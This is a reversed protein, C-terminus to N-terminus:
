DPVLRQFVQFPMRDLVFLDSIHVDGVGHDRKLASVAELQLRNLKEVDHQWLPHGLLVAKPNAGDTLLAPLGCSDDYHLPGFPLFARVFADGLLAARDMWRNLRLGEGSILDIMDLALRWDLAWHLQRNDYSRLCRPCSTSCVGAHEPGEYTKTLQSRVQGLLEEFRDQRGLEVAYGAGNDLADAVFVQHTLVGDRFVPQLGVELEAEDIDLSAKCARRLVHALSWLAPLGAPLVEKTTPVAGDVLNLREASVILVDTRRIEGIAADPLPTGSTLWNPLTRQYLSTDTVVVSQDPLRVMPYLMGLNDNVQVVVAQELVTLSCGPLMVAPGASDGHAALQPAGSYFPQEGADDYDEPKYDTRFGEPQVFPIADAVHGCLGCLRAESPDDVVEISQCAPCRSINIVEGLPDIPRLDRGRMEYAAFGVATHQQGDKVVVAGPAYAGVAQDLERDSVTVADLRAITRAPGGYLSRVRTPFGFMPLLGANALLESLEAHRFYPNAVADTIEGALDRRVWAEVAAPDVATFSCFHECITGVAPDTRLWGAVQQTRGSWEETRGFTGHISDPNRAPPEPLALFALRLAEAAAVRRVIRDRGLDIFPAPPEDGTMSEVNEFYYDDHSRDKCLTIAFSFPQGSRGARGVRQQYNFRQPPVNAMAVSRLAGIDVGVEMTTTVSLVDLPDTVSNEEPAPLLAHRFRRQRDRQEALSTQGTLEAVSMRRVPQRALWGYYDGGGSAAAPQHELVPQNCGRATCVGGAPHLHVAACNACVWCGATGPVIVLAVDAKHMNLLWTDSMVGATTLESEVVGALERGDVGFRRGVAALYATVAGPVSGSSEYGGPFRKSIGLIRLVSRRVELAPETPITWKRRLGGRVDVYGIGTSEVDRGARDFVATSANTVLQRRLEDRGSGAVASDLPEWLGPAPPEFGLYWPSESSIYAASPGPGAPNIGHRLCESELHALLAPWGTAGADRSAAEIASKDEDEALGARELRLASYLRPQHEKVRNALTREAPELAEQGLLRRLLTVPDHTQGLGQRVLQRIQDRYNNLAVGASTRAADDRSDTFVITRSSEADPGSSRFLQSIALQAMQSQGATHARIPSRVVGHFFTERERNLGGRMQCRPCYEPLAPVRRSSDHPLNHSLVLGTGLGTTHELSGIYPNLDVWGFSLKVQRGEPTGHHWELNPRVSGPWYWRYEDHSRRFVEEGMRTGAQVPTPSLLASGDEERAVYGGLSPEGCEYCYLFELVRGGCACTTAPVSFLRGITRGGRHAEPVQDCQPNACAWLGRIGRMFLHARIPVEANNEVAALGTLLAGTAAAARPDDAYLHREVTALPTARHRGDTDRCAEAVVAAWHESVARNASSDPDAEVAELVSEVSPVAFGSVERPSGTEIAFTSAPLGFFRGLFTQSESNNPLSASTALVRVQPSAAVLGLRSLLSRLVMAVEAGSSGRYLHLEDVVVTFVHSPDSELWSRTAEFMPEELARMLMANLMSYNTVLIDPPAAVMDWRVMMEASRPDPFQALLEDSDMRTALRDYQNVARRLESAVARVRDGARGGVPLDGRGPTAGTYRGFWLPPCADQDALKRIALRLRTVQDEVLANTPYLVLARMAAPRASTARLSSWGLAARDWSWWQNVPHEKTWGRGEMVLRALIPLLFAETKGSGTGSTIVVNHPQDDPAFHHRLAAAQHERLMIPAGEAAFRGFLARGAQETAVPDLGAESAVDSLPIVADYPLVPELLVDTFLMSDRSDLLAVREAMLRPDRLWYATDVYRLYAERLGRSIDSPTPFQM